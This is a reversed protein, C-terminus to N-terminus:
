GFSVNASKLNIIIEEIPLSDPLNNFDPEVSYLKRGDEYVNYIIYDDGEMNISEKKVSYRQNVETIFDNIKEGIVVGDGRGTCSLLTVAFLALLLNKNM